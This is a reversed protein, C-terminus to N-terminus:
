NENDEEQKEDENKEDDQKSDEQKDEDTLNRDQEDKDEEKNADKEASEINEDVAHDSDLLTQLSQNIYNLPNVPVDKHRIEFHVHIGADKNYMNRGAQGIVDGQKIQSGESVAVNALSQYHTVVDKDHSIQVVYGLLEDEEVKTVTGSLAATVDFTEKDKSALDIGKNQYYTNNYYVLAAEQEEQSANVDYFYGIVEVEDVNAVPMKITEDASTVPLADNNEVALGDETSDKADQNAEDNTQMFLFASLVIAVAALYVAPLVWRKRLFKQVNLPNTGKSQNSSKNNEEENRM